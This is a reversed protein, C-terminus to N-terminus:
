KDEGSGSSAAIKGYVFAGPVPAARLDGNAVYGTIRAYADRQTEVAVQGVVGAKYNLSVNGILIDDDHLTEDRVITHGLPSLVSSSGFYPNFLYRGQSDKASLLADFATTSLFIEAGTRYLRPLKGIAAIIDDSLTAKTFTASTAGKTIGAIRGATTDPVAETGDGYIIEESWDADFDLLLQNVVYSGLDFGGAQLRMEDTLKIISQLSGFSLNLSGYEWLGDNTKKAEVKNQAKTRAKRYPLKTIGDAPFMAARVRDLIPTLPQAESVLDFLVSTPIFVGFNSQGNVSSTATVKATNTTGNTTDLARLEDRCQEIPIDKARKNIYSALAERKTMRKEDFRIPNKIEAGRKEEELKRVLEDRQKKMSDLEGAMRETDKKLIDLAAADTVNAIQEAREKMSKEQEEISANLNDILEKTNM